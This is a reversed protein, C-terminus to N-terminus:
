CLGAAQSEKRDVPLFSNVPLVPVRRPILLLRWTIIQTRSFVTCDAAPM